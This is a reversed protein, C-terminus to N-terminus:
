SWNTGSPPQGQPLGEVADIGQELEDAVRDLDAAAVKYRDAYRHHLPHPSEASERYCTALGRFWAVLDRGKPVPPGQELLLRSKHEDLRLRLLLKAVTTVGEGARKLMAVFISEMADELRVGNSAALNRKISREGTRASDHV